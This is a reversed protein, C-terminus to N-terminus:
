SCHGSGGKVTTDGSCHGVSGSGDGSCHGVGERSDIKHVAKRLFKTFM